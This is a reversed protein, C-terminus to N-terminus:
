YIGICLLFYVRMPISKTRYLWDSFWLIGIISQLEMSLEHKIFAPFIIIYYIHFYVFLSYKFQSFIDKIKCIKNYAHECFDGDM